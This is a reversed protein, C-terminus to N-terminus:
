VRFGSGRIGLGVFSRELTRILGLGQVRFGSGQIRSRVGKVRFRGLGQVGRVSGQARFGSGQVRRGIDQVRCESAVM